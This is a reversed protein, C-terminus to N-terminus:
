TLCHTQKFERIAKLICEQKEKIQKRCENLEDDWFCIPDVMCSLMDVALVHFSKMVFELLDAMVPSNFKNVCDNITSEGECVFYQEIQELDFCSKQIEDVLNFQAKAGLQISIDGSEITASFTIEGIVGTHFLCLYFLIFRKMIIDIINIGM